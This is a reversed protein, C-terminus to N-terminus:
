SSDELAPAPRDLVVPVAYAGPLPRRVLKGGCCPCLTPDVGTLRLLRERWDVPVPMPPPPDPAQLARRAAVLRTNVNGSALLGFHRIKVYGKPLVHLLFRRIFEGPALTAVKGDRTHFHVGDDDMSILRQNSIGTRHTYRGLYEFVQDAGGFPRKAFVVWKKRYLKDLLRKFVAPDALPACDGGLDLRGADYAKRLAALAKGRLLAGLVRVPFLFRTSTSVWRDEGPV